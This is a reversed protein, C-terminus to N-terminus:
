KLSEFFSWTAKKGESWMAHGLGPVKCTVVPQYCASLAVCPSPATPRASGTSCRNAFAWHAISNQGESPLVSNDALGHVVLSAVAKGPCLLHGQEDYKGANEYPGGGSHTAVARIRDGRRCALQNAMYAGNSFGTVFIRREDVCLSGHLQFLIADFLAVDRNKSTEGDLDWGGGIGEPYVFIARGQAHRELDLQARVSAASGGNGHLGFVVPYPTAPAYGEPVVLTFSRPKGMATIRQGTHVGPAAPKGCGPSGAPPAAAPAPGAAPSAAHAYAPDPAGPAPGESSAHPTCALLFSLLWARRV